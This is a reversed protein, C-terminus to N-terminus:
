KLEKEILLQIFQSLTRREKDVLKRLENQQDPTIRAHVVVTRSETKAKQKKM